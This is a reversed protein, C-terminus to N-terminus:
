HGPEVIRGQGLVQDGLDFGHEQGIADADDDATSYPSPTQATNNTPTGPDLFALGDTYHHHDLFREVLQAGNEPTDSVRVGVVTLHTFGTTLDDSVLPIDAARFLETAEDTSLRLQAERVEALEAHARLRAIPLRPDARCSVVVQLSPPAREVFSWLTEDCLPNDIRHWDELVLVTNPLGDLDELLSPIMRTGLARTGATLTDLSAEGVAPHMSRLGHVIHSWLRIPDADAEDAFLWVFPTEEHDAACWQALLTTKGYGAPACVLTLRRQRGERLRTLLPARPVLASRLVPPRLKSRLLAVQPSPTAVHTMVVTTPSRSYAAAPRNM